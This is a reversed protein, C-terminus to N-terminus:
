AFNEIKEEGGKEYGSMIGLVSLGVDTLKPNIDLYKWRKWFINLNLVTKYVIINEGVSPILPCVVKFDVSM